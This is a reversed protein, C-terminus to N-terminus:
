FSALIPDYAIYWKCRASPNMDQGVQKLQNSELFSVFKDNKRVRTFSSPSCGLSDRLDAIPIKVTENSSQAEELKGKILKISEQVYYTGKCNWNVFNATPFLKQIAKLYVQHHSVMLYVDCEGSKGFSSNRANGRYVSQMFDHLFEGIKTLEIEEKTAKEDSHLLASGKAFSNTPYLNGFMLLKRINNYQNTSTHYGYQLYHHNDKEGTYDKLIKVFNLEDRQNENITKFHFTLAESNDELLVKSYAEARKHVENHIKFKNRGGAINWVHFTINMDNRKASYRNCVKYKYKKMLKYIHRCQGSADTIIIPLLKEPITQEYQLCVTGQNTTACKVIKNSINWLTEAKVRKQDDSISNLYSQKDILSLYRAFDFVEIEADDKSVQLTEILKHIDKRLGENDIVELPLTSAVSYIDSVSLESVEGLNFWEDWIKVQRPEGAYNFVTDKNKYSGTVHQQTTIVVPAHHAVSREYSGHKSMKPDSIYVAVYKFLEESDKEIEKALGIVSANRSLCIVAGVNLDSALLELLMFKIITTKGTGCPLSSLQVPDISYGKAAAEMAKSLDLLGLREAVSPNHTVHPQGIFEWFRQMVNVTLPYGERILDKALESDKFSNDFTDKLKRKYSSEYSQGLEQISGHKLQKTM